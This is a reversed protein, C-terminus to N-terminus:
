FCRFIHFYIIISQRHNSNFVADEESQSSVAAAVASPGSMIVRGDDSESDSLVIARNGTILEENRASMEASIEHINKTTEGTVGGSEYFLGIAM